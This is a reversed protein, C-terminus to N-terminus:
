PDKGPAVKSYWETWLREKLASHEDEAACVAKTVERVQERLAHARNGLDLLAAESAALEDRMQELTKTM